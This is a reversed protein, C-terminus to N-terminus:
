NPERRRNLFYRIEGEKTLPIIHAQYFELVARSSIRRRVQPNIEAQLHEVKNAVRELITDEVDPRTLVQLLGERDRKAILTDYTECDSEYKSEGVYLAGFHIRRAIAQLAYTDHEVSSGYHGDDGPLCIEPLLTRYGTLIQATMNVAEYDEIALPGPPLEVRRRSPPLGKTFPREEPVCFRGFESDFVEQAHLRIEFLSREEGEFGSKGAQYVVQNLAFQARDILKTIITEELGELCAAIQALDLPAQIRISTTM